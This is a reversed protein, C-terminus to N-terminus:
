VDTLAPKLMEIDSSSAEKQELDIFPDNRDSFKRADFKWKREPCLIKNGQRWSLGSQYQDEKSDDSSLVRNERRKSDLM